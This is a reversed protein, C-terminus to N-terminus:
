GRRKDPPSNGPETVLGYLERKPLGLRKAVAKIATMRDLGEESQLRSIEALPDDIAPKEESRGIAITFEGKISGRQSLQDLIEQASGRLFEEHLKTLERGVVVPRNGLLDAMDHLTELIRHPSEYAVVTGREKVIEELVRRRAGSKAPLFGRFYFEDTPLGSAALTSLLASAGPLPVVSIGKSIAASVLRYGPDSLLPTGADSVLAISDGRELQEVLEAARVRENHEHYSVLPKHIQFHELLKRTQRTDECAIAAVEERLIRLARLTIDELNGIPTAVVYLIGPL